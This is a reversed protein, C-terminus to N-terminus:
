TGASPPRHRSSGADGRDPRCRRNRRAAAAVVARRRLRGNEAAITGTLTRVGRVRDGDTEIGTIPVGEHIAAGAARAARAMGRTAAVADVYGSDPEYAAAALDDVRAFPQLEQLEAPSILRSSIGVDNQLAVNRRLRDLNDEAGPGAPLTVVLGHPTHVPDGGVVDPWNAYTEWGAQALIAEPRNSYHRRLLAGTRGSAGAAIVGRELLVVRGAGRKALHWAISAGTVGGGIIAVDATLPATMMKRAFARGGPALADDRATRAGPTLMGTQRAVPCSEVALIATPTEARPGLSARVRPHSRHGALSGVGM